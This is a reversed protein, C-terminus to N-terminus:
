GQPIPPVVLEWLEGFTTTSDRGGFLLLRGRDPGAILEAGGRPSPADDTELRLATGDDSIRWSDALYTGDNGQGGFVLTGAAWRAAAHLNRALPAPDPALRAWSNTGPREGVVLHWLDDLATTGTTQGGYLVLEDDGTWWCAHLCREIPAESLPTEDTWAGTDLDFARTDAFRQGESTFGHSIWLRGDPGITACSGYRPVPRAGTTQLQRWANIAPDFAWLDNFFGDPGQGAFIVLGIGAAWVANHGFRAAPSAGNPTIQTWAGSAVSYRWLDDYVEGADRGGFLYADGDPALTWTHDERAQPVLGNAPLLRWGTAVASPSPAAASGLSPSGSTQQAGSASPQSSAPASCAVQIVAFGALTLATRAIV